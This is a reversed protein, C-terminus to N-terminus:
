MGKSKLFANIEDDSYGKAKLGQRYFDSSNPSVQVGTKLNQQNLAADSKYKSVVQGLAGKFESPSMDGNLFSAKLMDLEKEGAAAGTIEKRYTNFVQDISNMYSARKELFKSRDEKNMGTLSDALVESGQGIIPVGQLKESEKSVKAGAQNAYTFYSPDYNKEIKDFQKLLNQDSVLNKQADTESAKTLPSYEITNGNADIVKVTGAQAPNQTKNMAQYEKVKDLQMIKFDLANNFGSVPMKRMQEAVDKDIYGNKEAENLIDLQLTRADAPNAVKGMAMKATVAFAGMNNVEKADKKALQAMELKLNDQALQQNGKWANYRQEVDALDIKRNDIANGQDLQQQKLANEADNQQSLLGLKSQDLGYSKNFQSNQQALKDRELINQRLMADDASRVRANNMREQAAIQSAQDQSNMKMQIAQLGLAGINPLQPTNGGGLSFGRFDVPNIQVPM